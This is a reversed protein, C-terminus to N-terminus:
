RARIWLFAALLVTIIAGAGMLLPVPSLISFAAWTNSLVAEATTNAESGAPLGLAEVSAAAKYFIYVGYSMLLAVAILGVIVGAVVGVQSSM